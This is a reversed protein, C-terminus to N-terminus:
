IYIFFPRRVRFTLLLRNLRQCFILCQLQFFNRPFQQWWLFIQHFRSRFKKKYALSQNKTVLINQKFHKYRKLIEWSQPLYRILSTRSFNVWHLCSRWQLCSSNRSNHSSPTSCLVLMFNNSCSPQSKKHFLREFHAKHRKENLFKHVASQVLIPQSFTKDFFNIMQCPYRWNIMSEQTVTCVNRPYGM